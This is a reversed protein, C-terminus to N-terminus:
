RNRGLEPTNIAHVCTMVPAILLTTANIFLFDVVAFSTTMMLLMTALVRTRRPMLLPVPLVMPLVLLVAVGDITLFM